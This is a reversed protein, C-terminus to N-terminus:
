LRDEEDREISLDDGKFIGRYSSLPRQPILEISNGRSVMRIKEGSKLGMEDVFQKPITVQYNPSIVVDQTAPM